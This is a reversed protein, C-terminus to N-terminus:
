DSTRFLTMLVTVAISFSQCVLPESIAAIFDSPACYMKVLSSFFSFSILVVAGLHILSSEGDLQHKPPPFGIRRGRQVQTSFGTAVSPAQVLLVLSPRHRCMCSTHLLGGDM